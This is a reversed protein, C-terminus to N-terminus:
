VGLQSKQVEVLINGTGLTVSGATPNTFTVMVTNSSTVESDMTVGMRPSSFTSKVFDGVASGSVTVTEAVSAGTALAGITVASNGFIRIDNSAGVEISTDTRSLTSTLLNKCLKAKIRIFKGTGTIGSSATFLLFQIPQARQPWVGDIGGLGALLISIEEGAVLLSARDAGNNGSRGVYLNAIDGPSLNASAYIRLDCLLGYDGTIVFSSMGDKLYITREYTDLVDCDYLEEIGGVEYRLM